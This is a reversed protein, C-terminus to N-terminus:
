AGMLVRLARLCSTQLMAALRIVSMVKGALVLFNYVGSSLVLASYQSTFIVLVHHMTDLRILLWPCHTIVYKYKFLYM